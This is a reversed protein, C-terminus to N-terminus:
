AAINFGYQDVKNWFQEWRNKTQRLARTLLVIKAGENRWRMGSKCMREKVLVKCAAETAGSGIPVVSDVFKYYQMRDADNNNTFYSITKDLVKKDAKARVVERCDNVLKLFRSAGGTNHKLRHCQDEIWANREEETQTIIKGVNGIYESAHYFDILQHDAHRELFSWNNKAGDALGLIFVGPFKAKVLEIEKEFKELFNNKGYEPPTATYITHMREGHKNYLGITGTMAERWGEDKMQMCTGDLGISIGAVAEDFKPLAYEWVEDKAIAIAGVADCIDQIMSISIKRGHNEELDRQVSRVSNDTYKSSVIKAFKPTSTFIIRADYELPCYTRGGSHSQYVHREIEVPGYPTQYCKNQLGKSTYTQNGMRIPTGDTDFKKLIESTALTGAGNLQKQLREEIDLMSGTFDINIKLELTFSSENINIIKASMTHEERVIILPLVLEISFTIFPWSM